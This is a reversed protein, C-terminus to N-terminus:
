FFFARRYERLAKMFTPLSRSERKRVVMPGTAKAVSNPIPDPTERCAYGGVFEHAVLAIARM